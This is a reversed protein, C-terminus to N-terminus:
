NRTQPVIERIVDRIWRGEGADAFTVEYSHGPRLAVHGNTAFADDVSRFEPSDTSVIEYKYVHHSQGRIPRAAIVRITETQGRMEISRPETIRSSSRRRVIPAALTPRRPIPGRERVLQAAAKALKDVAQNHPNDKHGKVHRFDVRRLRQKERVLDNWLDHNLVPENERTTWGNAPWTTEASRIGDVVYASDAYVV